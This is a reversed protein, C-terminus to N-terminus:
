ILSPSSGGGMLGLGAPEMEPKSSRIMVSCLFPFLFLSKEEWGLIAAAINKLDWILAIAQASSYKHPCYLFFSLDPKGQSVQPM